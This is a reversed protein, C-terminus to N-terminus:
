KERRAKVETTVAHEVVDGVHHVGDSVQVFDYAPPLKATVEVKGDLRFVRYKPAPNDFWM